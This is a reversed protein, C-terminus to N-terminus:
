DQNAIYFDKYKKQYGVWDKQLLREGHLLMCRFVGGIVPEFAPRRVVMEPYCLRIQETFSERMDRCHRFVSGTLCVPTDPPLRRTRIMELCERAMKVGAERLIRVATPDGMEAARSVAKCYSGIQFVPAKQRYYVADYLHARSEIGYEGRLVAHLLGPEELREFVRMMHRLAQQGIWVGSGDDSLLYGWGGIVDEEIGNRVYFVDSGTGSLACLGTDIGCVLVGVSGEGASFFRKCRVHRRVAREYRKGDQSAFLIEIEGIPQGARELMGCLCEEIHRDAEVATHVTGNVGGSLGFALVTYTEDFLVGQLKTGGGDFAIYYKM